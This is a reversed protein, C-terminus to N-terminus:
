RAYEPYRIKIAEYYYPAYTCCFIESAACYKVDEEPSWNTHGTFLSFALRTTKKSTSTQWPQELAGPVIVREEINLLEPVHARCVTDMTLLYALSNYYVDDPLKSCLEEYAKQHEDDRFLM